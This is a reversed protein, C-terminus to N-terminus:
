LFHKNAGVHHTSMPLMAAPQVPDRPVDRHKAISESWVLKFNPWTCAHLGYHTTESQLFFM